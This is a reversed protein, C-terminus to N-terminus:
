RVANALGYRCISVRECGSPGPGIKGMEENITALLCGTDVGRVFVRGRPGRYARKIGRLLVLKEWDCQRPITWCGATRGREPRNSFHAQYRDIAFLEWFSM